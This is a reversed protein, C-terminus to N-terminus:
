ANDWNVSKLSILILILFYPNTITTFYDGIHTYARTTLPIFEMELNETIVIIDAFQRASLGMLQVHREQVM